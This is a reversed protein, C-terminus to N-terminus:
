EEEYPSDLWSQPTLLELLWDTAEIRGAWKGAAFSDPSKGVEGLYREREQEVVWLLYRFNDNHELSKTAKPLSIKQKSM